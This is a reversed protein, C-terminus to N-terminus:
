RDEQEPITISAQTKLKSLVAAMEAAGHVKNLNNWLQEQAMAPLSSFDGAKVEELAVIIYDGSASMVGEHVPQDTDPTRVTFAAAVIAAAPESANRTILETAQVERSENAAISALTTDGAQLDAILQKGTATALARAKEDELLQSIQERVTDLPQRAAAQRELVRLVVVHDTGIEIAASNNGNDLVDESFLAERVSVNAAVGTGDNASVWGSDKIELELEDAAGQLTDPQEFAMNSLTESKEYFLDGRESSLLQDTLEDRVEALPTAEEPRIEVLEIVHVGFPSKVPKSLEGPQLEYVANEFEPAMIGRGFFGLDGGNAASGPDDSLEKALAAFEEGADLRSVVSYAKELAATTAADDADAALRILIHRAHREEPTVYNSSQEDYLAQLAQEDVEIGPDLTAVDLELYQARVREPTMFADAHSDYYSAIEEDSVNVQSSFTSLPLLLYKFRRQQGELVFAQSLSQKPAAATASIGSTFQSNIIDRKLSQEFEAPRIGQYGLIQEYKEKSFIGDERFAEIASISAAVQESSAAFGEADAAQLTLSQNILQQLASAKLMDDDLLGPDFAQGLQEEMRRRLQDYSRQLQGFGIEEDNVVAAYNVVDTQLYSNLGFFAFAVVLFGLIVWGVVGMIRERIALLM